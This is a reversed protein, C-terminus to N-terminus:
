NCVHWETWRGQNTQGERVLAAVTHATYTKIRPGPSCCLPPLKRRFLVNRALLRVGHIVKEAGKPWIEFLFCTRLFFLFLHLHSYLTDNIYLKSLHHYLFSLIFPLWTLPLNFTLTFTQKCTYTAKTNLAIGWVSSWASTKDQRVTHMCMWYQVM